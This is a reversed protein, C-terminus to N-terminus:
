GGDFDDFVKIDGCNYSEGELLRITKAGTGLDNLYFGILDQVDIYHNDNIDKYIFVFYDDPTLDSLVFSVSNGSGIVKSSKIPSLFYQIDNDLEFVKEINNEYLLVLANELDGVVGEELTATGKIQTVSEVVLTKSAIATANQKDIVTVTISYRGSEGPARWEVNSGTGQITGGTVVYEYRLVENENIDTAATTVNVIGNPEINVPSIVFSTISPPVNEEKDCSFLFVSLCLTVLAIKIINNKMKM